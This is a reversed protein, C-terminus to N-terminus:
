FGEATFPFICTFIKQNPSSGVCSFLAGILQKSKPDKLLLRGVHMGGAYHCVNEMSVYVKDMDIPQQANKYVQDCEVPQNKPPMLLLEDSYALQTIFLAGIFVLCNVLKM